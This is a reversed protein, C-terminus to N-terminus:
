PEFRSRDVVACASRHYKKARKLGFQRGNLSTSRGIGRLGMEKTFACEDACPADLGDATGTGVDVGLFLDESSM